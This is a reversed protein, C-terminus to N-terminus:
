EKVGRISSVDTSTVLTLAKHLNVEMYTAKFLLKHLMSPGTSNTTVSDFYHGIGEAVWEKPKVSFPLFLHRSVQVAAVADDVTEGKEAEDFQGALDVHWM